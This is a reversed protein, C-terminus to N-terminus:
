RALRPRTVAAAETAASATIAQLFGPRWRIVALCTLGLLIAAGITTAAVGLHDAVPGQVLAGVPYAVGLAVLFFSLV